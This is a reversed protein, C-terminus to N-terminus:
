KEESDFAYIKVDEEKAAPATHLAVPKEMAILTEPKLDELIDLQSRIISGVRLKYSEVQQTLERYRQELKKIEDNADRIIQNAKVRAEQLILEGQESATARVSDAMQQATMLTTHLTAEKAKYEEVQATLAAITERSANCEKYLKEYDILIMSMFDEVDDRNYGKLTRKFERNEIDLPTLM